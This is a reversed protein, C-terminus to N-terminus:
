DLLNPEAENQPREAQSIVTGSHAEKIVYGEGMGLMTEHPAPLIPANEMVGEAIVTWETQLPQPMSLDIFMQAGTGSGERMRPTMEALSCRDRWAPDMVPRGDRRHLKEPLIRSDASMIAAPMFRAELESQSPISPSQTRSTEEPVKLDQSIM